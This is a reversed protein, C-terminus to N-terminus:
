TGFWARLASTSYAREFEKPKPPVLAARSKLRQNYHRPCNTTRLAPKPKRTRARSAARSLFTAGRGKARCGARTADWNPPRVKLDSMLGADLTPKLGQLQRECSILSRFASM